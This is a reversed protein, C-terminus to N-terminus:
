KEVDGTNGLIEREMQPLIAMIQLSGSLSKDGESRQYFSAELIPDHSSSTYLTTEYLDAFKISQILSAKEPWIWIHQTSKFRYLSGCGAHTNGVFDTKNTSVNLLLFQKFLHWIWGLFPWERWSVQNGHPQSNKIKATTALRKRSLIEDYTELSCYRGLFLDSNM